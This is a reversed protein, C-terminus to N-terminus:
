EKGQTSIDRRTKPNQLLCVALKEKINFRVKEKERRKRPSRIDITPPM